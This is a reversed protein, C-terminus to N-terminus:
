YRAVASLGSRCRRYFQRLNEATLTIPPEQFLKHVEAWRSPIMTLHPYESTVVETWPPEPGPNAHALFGAIDRWELQYDAAERLVGLILLRRGVVSGLTAVVGAFRDALGSTGMVQEEPGPQLSILPPAAQARDRSQRVNEKEESLPVERHRLCALVNEVTSPRINTEEVMEALTPQRGLLGSLRYFADRVRKWHKRDDESLGLWRAKFQIMRGRVRHGAYTWLRTGAQPNFTYLAQWLGIMGEQRLDDLDLRDDFLQHALNRIPAEFTELLRALAQQDGVQAQRVLTLEEDRSLVM